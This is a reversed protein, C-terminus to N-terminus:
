NHGDYCPHKKVRLPNVAGALSGPQGRYISPCSNIGHPKGNGPLPPLPPFPPLPLLPPLPAPFSISTLSSIPCFDKKLVGEDGGEEGVEEAEGEEEEGEAEGEEGEEGM